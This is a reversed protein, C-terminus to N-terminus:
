WRITGPASYAIEQASSRRVLSKMLKFRASGKQRLASTLIPVIPRPVDFEYGADGLFALLDDREASLNLLREKLQWPDYRAAFPKPKGPEIYTPYTNGDVLTAWRNLDEPVSADASAVQIEKMAQERSYM